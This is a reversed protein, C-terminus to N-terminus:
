QTESIGVEVTLNYDTARVVTRVIVAVVAIMAEVVGLRTHHNYSWMAGVGTAIM